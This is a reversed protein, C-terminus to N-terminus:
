IIGFNELIAMVACFALSGIILLLPLLLENKLKKKFATEISKFREDSPFSLKGTSLCERLKSKYLDTFNGHSYQSFLYNALQFLGEQDTPIIVKGIEKGIEEKKSRNDYFSNNEIKSIEESLKVYVPRNEHEQRAKECTALWAAHNNKRGELYSKFEDLDQGMERARAMLRSEEEETIVDDRLAEDVLDKLKKYIM